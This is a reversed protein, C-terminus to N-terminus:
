LKTPIPLVELLEHLRRATPRSWPEKRLCALILKSVPEPIGPVLHHPPRPTTVLHHDHVEADSGDFVQSGTLLEYGVAGLSYVDSVPMAAEPDILIEPPVYPTSCVLAYGHRQRAALLETLTRPGPARKRSVGFDAITIKSEGDLLLNAPKLDRHVIGHEGHLRTLIESTQRMLYCALQWDLRGREAILSALDTGPVLRTYFMPEEPDPVSDLIQIVGTFGVLRKLVRVENRM